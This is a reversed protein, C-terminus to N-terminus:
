SVSADLVSAGARATILGTPTSAVPLPKGRVVPAPPTTVAKLMEDRVHLGPLRLELAVALQMAVNFVGAGTAPAATMSALLLAKSVTGGEMVTAAPAVVTVKLAVAEAESVLWWFAVTVAFRPPLECVAVKPKTAGGGTEPTAHLGALIPCPAVLVQVTVSVWTAGPSEATVRALSLVDSVTGAETVTTAPAVVAVNLAMAAADTALM